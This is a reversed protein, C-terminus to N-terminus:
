SRRCGGVFCGCRSRGYPRRGWCRRLATQRGANGGTFGHRPFVATLMSQEIPRTRRRYGNRQVQRPPDRLRAGGCNSSRGRGGDTEAAFLLMERVLDTDANKETLEILAMREDTTTTGRELPELRCSSGYFSSQHHGAAPTSVAVTMLLLRCTREDIALIQQGYTSFLM